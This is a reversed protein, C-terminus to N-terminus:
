PAGLIKINEIGIPASYEDLGFKMTMMARGIKSLVVKKKLLTYQTSEKRNIIIVM